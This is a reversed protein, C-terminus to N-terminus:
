KKKKTAKPSSKSPAAAPASCRLGLNQLETCAKSSYDNKPYLKILDKFEQAAETKHGAMKLLSMGKFYRAEPARKNDNPFKELVMDFDKAATQYDNQSYHIYGIYFQADAAQGSDGYYKLFQQFEDLAMDLRGARYDRDAATYLDTASMPPAESQAAASGQQPAGGAPPPPAPAPTQLVKLQNSVDQLTTQVRNIVATLDSVSGQMTRLDGSLSDMRTNMNAVPTSVKAEISNLSQQLNSQIVAVARNADNSGNLAQQVLTRLEALKEDQSRRFQNVTDQLQAIDRQLEQIEKSAGFALSPSVLLAFACLRRFM